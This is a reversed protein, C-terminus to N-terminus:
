VVYRDGQMNVQQTRAGDRTIGVCQVATRRDTEYEIAQRCHGCLKYILKTDVIELAVLTSPYLSTAPWASDHVQVINSITGCLPRSILQAIIISCFFVSM